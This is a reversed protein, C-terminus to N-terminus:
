AASRYMHSGFAFKQQIYIIKFICHSYKTCSGIDALDWSLKGWCSGPDGHDLRMKKQRLDLIRIIGYCHQQSPIRSKQSRVLFRFYLIWSAVLHRMRSGPSGPNRKKKSRSVHRVAVEEYSTAWFYCAPRWASCQAHARWKCKLTSRWKCEFTFVNTM